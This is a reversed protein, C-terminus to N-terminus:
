AWDHRPCNLDHGDGGAIKELEATSLDIDELEDLYAEAEAMTMEVGETKALAILEDATECKAAKALMEKTIKTKDIPM